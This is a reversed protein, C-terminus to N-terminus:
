DNNVETKDHFWYELRKICAPCLHKEPPSIANGPLIAPPIIIIKYSDVPCNDNMLKGCKDCKIMIM